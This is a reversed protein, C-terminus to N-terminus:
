KHKPGKGNYKVAFGNDIMQQNIFHSNLYVDALIRGYKETKVNKLQVVSGVKLLKALEAKAKEAKIQVTRNKDRLEPTDIGALRVSFRYPKNAVIGIIKITDGDHVDIVMGEHIPPVFNPVSKIDLGNYKNDIKGCCSGM